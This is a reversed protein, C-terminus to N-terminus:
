KLTRVLRFGVDSYGRSADLGVRAAARADSLSLRWSGGRVVRHSANVYSGMAPLGDEIRPGARDFGDATWERVNGAAGRMGYPSTDITSSGVPVTDEPARGRDRVHCFSGDGFDGWPYCRGDVGRAAKEWQLETPLTWRVGTRESFWRAYARATKWRMGVAPGDARWVGAGDRLAGARHAGAAPDVLFRSFEAFTVPDRQIVFGDLWVPLGRTGGAARRDGGFDFPGACVVIENEELNPAPLAIAHVKSEGPRVGLWPERRRLVVPYRIAPGSEPQLEILYSGIPLDEDIGFNMGLDRTEQSVLRRERLEYSRLHIECPREIAIRLRSQGSLYDAYRGTDHSRLLTEHRAADRWERRREAERHEDYHFDALLENIEGLEPALRSAARLRRVVEAAAQAADRELGEAEDELAWGFSKDGASAGHSGLMVEARDRLARARERQPKLRALEERAERLTTLAGERRQAGERWEAMAEAMPGAHAYRDPPLPAMARLIIKMLADDVVSGPRQPLDDVQGRAALFVLERPSGSYPRKLALLEYLLVGLSYVDAAPGVDQGGIAQEPSMYAPTGAMMQRAESGHVRVPPEVADCSEPPEVLRAVGWDMVIVEGFAGVMINAPKVDCHVVGRSHAYAIAECVKQFIDLRRHESLSCQDDDDRDNLVEMLTRGHVEKMTFYPRGDSLQGAEHVPPISPHALQATVQAEEFFRDRMLLQTSYDEHLVKMALLRNLSQEHARHVEGMGGRALLKLMELGRQPPAGGYPRSAPSNTSRRALRTDDPPAAAITQGLPAAVPDTREPGETEPGLQAAEPDTADTDARKLLRGSSIPEPDTLAGTPLNAVGSEEVPGRLPPGVIDKAAEGQADSQRERRNKARSGVGVSEGIRQAGTAAYAPDV